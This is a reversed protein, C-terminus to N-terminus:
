PVENQLVVREVLGDLVDDGGAARGASNLRCFGCRKPSNLACFLGGM